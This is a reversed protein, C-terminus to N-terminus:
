QGTGFSVEGDGRRQHRENGAVATLLPCSMQSVRFSALAALLSRNVSAESSARAHM